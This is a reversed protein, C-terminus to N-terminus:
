IRKAIITNTAITRKIIHTGLNDMKRTIRRQMRRTALCGALCYMCKDQAGAKRYMRMGQAGAMRYMCMGQAGAKHYMCMGQVGAHM